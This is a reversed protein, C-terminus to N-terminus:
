SAGMRVVRMTERGACTPRDPSPYPRMYRVMPHYRCPSSKLVDISVM